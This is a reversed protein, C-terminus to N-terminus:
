AKVSKMDRFSCITLNSVVATSIDTNWRCVGCCDRKSRGHASTSSPNLLYDQMIIGYPCIWINYSCRWVYETEIVMMRYM